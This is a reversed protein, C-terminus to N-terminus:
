GTSRLARLRTTTPELGVTPASLDNGGQGSEVWPKPVRPRARKWEARRKRQRVHGVNTGLRRGGLGNSLAGMTLQKWTPPVRTHTAVLQSCGPIPTGTGQM